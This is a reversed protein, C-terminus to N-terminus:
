GIRVKVPQHEDAHVPTTSNQTSGDGLERYTNGGWCWLTTNTRVGCSHNADVHVSSWVKASGPVQVQV